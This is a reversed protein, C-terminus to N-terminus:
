RAMAVGSPIRRAKIKIFKFPHLDLPNAFWGDIRNLDILHVAASHSLPLIVAKDVGKANMVAIQDEASMFTTSGPQKIKPFAFVHAHVDIIM